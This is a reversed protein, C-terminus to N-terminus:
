VDIGMEALKRKMGDIACDRICIKNDKCLIKLDAPLHINTPSMVQGNTQTVLQM